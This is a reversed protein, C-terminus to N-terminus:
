VVKVALTPAAAAAASVLQHIEVLQAPRCRVYGHRLLARLVCVRDALPPAHRPDRRGRQCDYDTIGVTAKLPRGGRYVSSRFGGKVLAPGASAPRLLGAARCSVIGRAFASPRACSLPTTTVCPSPSASSRWTGARTSCPFLGARQWTARPRDSAGAM